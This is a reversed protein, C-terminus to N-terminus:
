TTLRKWVKNRECFAVGVGAGIWKFGECQMKNISKALLLSAIDASSRFDQSKKQFSRRKFRWHSFFFPPVFVSDIFLDVCIVVVFQSLSLSLAHNGLVLWIGESLFEFPDPNM